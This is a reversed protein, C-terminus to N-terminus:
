AGLGFSLLWVCLEISLTDYGIGLASSLLFAFHGM